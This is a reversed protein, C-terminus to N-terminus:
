PYSPFERGENCSFTHMGQKDFCEETCYFLGWAADYVGETNDRPLDDKCCGECHPARRPGQVRYKIKGVLRPKYTDPRVFMGNEDYSSPVMESIVFYEVHVGLGPSTHYDWNEVYRAIRADERQANMEGCYDAYGMAELDGADENNHYDYCRGDDFSFDM